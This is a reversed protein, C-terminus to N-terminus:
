AYTGVSVLAAAGGIQALRLMVKRPKLPARSALVLSVGSLFIFTGAIAQAFLIWFSRGMTLPDIFGFLALDYTFHFVGMAALALTRAIDVIALRHPSHM